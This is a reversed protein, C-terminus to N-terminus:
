KRSLNETATKLLAAASELTTVSKELVSTNKEVIGAMVAHRSQLFDNFEKQLGDVRGQLADNRAMFWRAMWAIAVLFVILLVIFLWRDSQVSAFTAADSVAKITVPDPM